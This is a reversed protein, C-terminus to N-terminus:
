ALNQSLAQLSWECVESSIKPRLGLVDILRDDM